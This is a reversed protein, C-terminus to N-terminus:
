HGKAAERTNKNALRITPVRRAFLRGRSAPVPRMGVGAPWVGVGAPRMGVGVGPGTEEGFAPAAGAGPLTM